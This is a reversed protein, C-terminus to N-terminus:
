PRGCAAAEGLLLGSLLVAFQDVSCRSATPDGRRLMQALADRFRQRKAASDRLRSERLVEAPTRTAM